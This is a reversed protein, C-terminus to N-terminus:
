SVSAEASIISGFASNRRVVAISRFASLARAPPHPRLYATLRCECRFYAGALISIQRAGRGPAFNKFKPVRRFDCLAPQGRATQRILRTRSVERQGTPFERDSYSFGREM